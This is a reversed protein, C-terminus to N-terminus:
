RTPSAQYEQEEKEEEIYAAAIEDWNVRDFGHRLLDAWLGTVEPIGAELEDKIREALQWTDGEESLVQAAQEHAWCYSPEENDLWLKVVWTEYNEWGNYGQEETM